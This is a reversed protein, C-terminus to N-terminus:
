IIEKGELNIKGSMVKPLLADLQKSLNINAKELLRIQDYIPNVKQTYLEIYKETPIIISLRNITKAYVHPQASGVQMNTIVPQLFKLANYM